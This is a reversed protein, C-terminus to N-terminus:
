RSSPNFTNAGAGFEPTNSKALVIGGSAELRELEDLLTGMLAAGEDVLAVWKEDPPVEAGLYEKALRELADSIAAIAEACEKVANM